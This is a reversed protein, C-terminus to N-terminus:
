RRVSIRSGSFSIVRANKGYVSGEQSVTTLPLLDKDVFVVM